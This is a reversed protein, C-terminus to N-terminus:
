FVPWVWFRILNEEVLVARRGNQEEKLSQQKIYDNTWPWFREEVDVSTSVAWSYSPRIGSAVSGGIIASATAMGVQSFFHNTKGCKSTLQSKKLHVLHSASWKWKSTLQSKEVVSFSLRKLKKVFFVLAHLSFPRCSFIRFQLRLMQINVFRTKNQLHRRLSPQRDNNM